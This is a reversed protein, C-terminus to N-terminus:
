YSCGLKRRLLKEEGLKRSKSNPPSFKLVLEIEHICKAKIVNVLSLSEWKSFVISSTNVIPPCENFYINRLVALSNTKAIKLLCLVNWKELAFCFHVTGIVVIKHCIFKLDELNISQEIIFNLFQSREQTNDYSNMFKVTREKNLIFNQFFYSKKNLFSEM